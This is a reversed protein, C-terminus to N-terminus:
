RVPTSGVAATKGPKVNEFYRMIAYGQYQQLHQTTYVPDRTETGAYIMDFM